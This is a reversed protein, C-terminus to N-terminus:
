KLTKAMRRMKYHLRVFSPLQLDIVASRRLNIRRKRLAHMVTKILFSDLEKLQSVNSILSFYRLWNRGLFRTRPGEDDLLYGELRRQLLYSLNEVSDASNSWKYAIESIRAKMVSINKPKILLKHLTYRYGLFDFFESGGHFRNTHLNVTRTKERHLTLMRQQQLFKQILKGAKIVDTKNKSLLVFDDAYRVYTVNPFQSEILKDMEDLYLNALLGSLIGGQPIGSHCPTYGHKKSRINRPKKDFNTSVHGTKLFRRILTGLLEDDPFRENVLELLVDHNVSDFFKQIDADLVWTKGSLIAQRVVKVAHKASRGKRYGYSCNSYGGDLHNVMFDAIPTQCIISSISAASIPRTEGPPANKKPIEFRKSPTFTFRSKSNATPTLMRNLVTNVMESSHQRFYNSTVGDLGTYARERKKLRDYFRNRIAKELDDPSSRLDLLFKELTMMIQLQYCRIAKGWPVINDSPAAGLLRRRNDYISEQQCITDAGSQGAPTRGPAPNFRRRWCHVPQLLLVASPKLFFSASQM